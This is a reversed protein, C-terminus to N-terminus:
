LTYTLRLIAMRGIEPAGVFERHENGLVNLVQLDARLGPAYRAFDYGAGVDLVFYSEVDGVYPGSRVPFGETYRGSANISAGGTFGYRAGVKTKLTPANLAVALDTNTEELEENDFYDDSVFSVNGFVSLADNVLLEAAVDAGWFEVQGFNRYSLLVEPVAGMGPNNESPQVVAVPTEANPLQGGALSAILGAAQAPTVGFQALAGALQANGQIGAALAATLDASLTPVFVFPTEVLLPGIFNERRTYYGDASLLLRGGLIGKYGVEFTQTTTQSLPAVDVADSVDDFGGTSPNIVALRGQSFGQVNTGAQPSLLAVLQATVQDNVPLGAAQLQATIAATPLAALGAYVQGYVADLPLGVPQPAGCTPGPTPFCGSLGSAVLDTGAVAGYAPNREFTFGQAAGRARFTFPVEATPQRAVIDLFNSNTGPSSFARNFTARLTNSANPKFVLAARPSLRTEEVINNYDARLAATVDLMPSVAVTGQAYAGYESITDDDENRGVITGDTDPRTLGADVGVIVNARDGLLFDYQAQANYFMGKDVVQQGTGYVFSDGANNRNVYAQAFFGGSQLRAQGYTYGFGDGQLTGIGSLVIGTFLSHGGTVTLATTPSFRYELTGNVNLKDYDYNRPQVDGELLAEDVPDSPDLEWDNVRAYDGTIKYGLNGGIVGAHRAQVGLYAREGGSVAVTTGPHDFPSKSIFHIVGADVGAGYLASGPGRVVEVRELDIPLNPMVSFLNVGLSPAAAQRYDTMVYTAGSFANNFGRLVVEQRAAGTQAMDVGTTNRLVQVANPAVSEQVIEQTSLVTVSAPADLVKEERRSASTVVVDGLGIASESLAVDVVAAAGAALTVTREAEAYGVFRFALTYTGAQLGALQYRGEGDTAAGVTTNPIVVNVGPLAEGTAVDTVRGSITGTQAWAAPVAVILLLLLSYFHKM